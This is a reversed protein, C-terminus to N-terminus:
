PDYMSVRGRPSGVHNMEVSERMAPVRTGPSHPRAFHPTNFHTLQWEQEGEPDASKRLSIAFRLTLVPNILGYALLPLQQGKILNFSIQIYIQAALM